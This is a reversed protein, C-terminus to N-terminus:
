TDWKKRVNRGAQEIQASAARRHTHKQLIFFSSLATHFILFSPVSRVFFLMRRLQAHAIRENKHKLKQTRIGSAHPTHREIHTPWSWCQSVILRLIIIIYYTLYPVCTSIAISSCKKELGRRIRAICFPCIM